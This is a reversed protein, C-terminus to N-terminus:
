HDHHPKMRQHLDVLYTTCRVSATEKIRPLTQTAIDCAEALEGQDLLSTALVIPSFTRSRAYEESGAALCQTAYQYSQAPQHLDRFCHAFEDALESEGFYGIWAPGYGLVAQPQVAPETPAPRARSGAPPCILGSDGSHYHSRDIRQQRHGHGHM